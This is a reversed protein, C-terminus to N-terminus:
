NTRTSPPSRTSKSKRWVAARRGAAQTLLGAEILAPAHADQWMDMRKDNKEVMATPLRLRVVDELTLAVPQVAFEFTPFQLVQQAM